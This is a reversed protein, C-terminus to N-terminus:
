QSTHEATGFVQLLKNSLNLQANTINNILLEGKHISSSLREQILMRKQPISELQSRVTFITKMRASTQIQNPSPQQQNELRFRSFNQLQNIVQFDAIFNLEISMYKLQANHQLPTIDTIKNDNILLYELLRCEQLPCIDTIKNNQLYLHKLNKLHQIGNLDSIKNDGAFLTTLGCLNRISYLNTIMNNQIYLDKLKTLKSLPSLDSIENFDVNLTELFNMNQLPGLDNLKDFSLNLYNLASLQHIGNLSKLQCYTVTIQECSQSSVNNFSINHCRSIFLIQVNLRSIFALDKLANDRKIKLVWDPSIRAQHKVFYNNQIEALELETQKM